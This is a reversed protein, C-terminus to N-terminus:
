LAHQCEKPMPKATCDLAGTSCSSVVAVLALSALLYGVAGVIGKVIAVGRGPIGALTKKINPPNKM